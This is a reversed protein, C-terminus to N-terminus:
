FGSEPQTTKLSNFVTNSSKYGRRFALHQFLHLTNHSTYGDPHLTPAVYEMFYQWFKKLVNNIYITLRCSVDYFIKLIEGFFIQEYLSCPHLINPIKKSYTICGSPQMECYRTGFCVWLKSHQSPCLTFSKWNGAWLTWVM